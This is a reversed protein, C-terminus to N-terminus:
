ILLKYFVVILVVIVIFIGAIGYAVLERDGQSDKSDCQYFRRTKEFVECDCERKVVEFKNKLVFNQRGVRAGTQNFDEVVVGNDFVLLAVRDQTCANTNNRHPLLCKTQERLPSWILEFIFTFSSNSGDEHGACELIVSLKTQNESIATSLQLCDPNAVSNSVSLISGLSNTQPPQKQHRFLRSRELLEVPCNALNPDSSPMSCDALVCAPEFSTAAPIALQLLALFLSERTSRAM